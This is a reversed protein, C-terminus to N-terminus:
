YLTCNNSIMYFKIYLKYIDKFDCNNRNGEFKILFNILDFHASCLQPLCASKNTFIIVSVSSKKIYNLVIKLLQSYSINIAIFALTKNANYQM